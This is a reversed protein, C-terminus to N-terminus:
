ETLVYWNSVLGSTVFGMKQYLSVAKKNESAVELQVTEETLAHCLACIVTRGGGPVLSAVWSIQDGSAIGIGILKGNQHVFYGNGNKLLTRGRAENMWAGNPVNRVKDNYISRWADITEETVPFLSANTEGLEAINARMRLIQTHLPYKECMKSGSAYVSEAGACRCFDLCEQLFAEPEASAQIRIYAQKTYPIESLTLSAVGLDTTFVPIDKM